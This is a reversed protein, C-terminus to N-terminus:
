FHQRHAVGLRAPPQRQDHDSVPGGLVELLSFGSTDLAVRSMISVKEVGISLSGGFRSQFRRPTTMLGASAYSILPFLRLRCYRFESDCQGTFAEQSDRGHPPQSNPLYSGCRSLLLM